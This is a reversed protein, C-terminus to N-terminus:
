IKRVMSKALDMETRNIASLEYGAVFSVSSVDESSLGFLLDKDMTIEGATKVFTKTSSNIKLKFLVRNLKDSLDRTLIKYKPKTQAQYAYFTIIRIDKKSFGELLSDELVIEQPTHEIFVSKGVVQIVFRIEGSRGYRIEAIKYINTVLIQQDNFTKLLWVIYQFITFTKKIQM